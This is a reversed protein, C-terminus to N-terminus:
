LKNVISSPKFRKGIRSPTRRYMKGVEKHAVELFFNDIVQLVNFLYIFLIYLM